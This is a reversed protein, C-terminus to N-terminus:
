WHTYYQQNPTHHPLFLKDDDEDRTKMITTEISYRKM